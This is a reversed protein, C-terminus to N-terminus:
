TDRVVVTGAIYDHLARRKDNTAMTLFEVVLWAVSAWMLIEDPLTVNEVGRVYTGTRVLYVLYVLSCTDLVVPGVDRLLAQPLTPVRHEQIDLVKVGLLRKGVTQGFRAHLLVSYLWYSSYAVTAWGIVVLQPREPSLLWDDLFGMPVFVIGDVMAAWFRRWSTQYKTM